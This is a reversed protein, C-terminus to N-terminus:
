SNPLYHQRFTRGWRYAPRFAEAMPCSAQLGRFKAPIALFAEMDYSFLDKMWQGQSAHAGVLEVKKAFTETIDIDTTRLKASNTYTFALAKWYITQIQVLCSM